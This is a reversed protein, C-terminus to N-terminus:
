RKGGVKRKGNSNYYRDKPDLKKMRENMKRITYAYNKIRKELSNIRKNKHFLEWQLRELEAHLRDTDSLENM